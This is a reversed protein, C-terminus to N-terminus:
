ADIINDKFYEEIIDTMQSAELWALVDDGNMPIIREGESRMNGRREHYRTAAGGVGHLFWEGKSTIYLTEIM